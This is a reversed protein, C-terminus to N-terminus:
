AAREEYEADIVDRDPRGPRSPLAHRSGGGRSSFAGGQWARYGAYGVIGLVGIGLATMLISSGSPLIPKFGPTLRDCAKACEVPDKGRGTCDSYCAQRKELNDRHAEAQIAIQRTTERKAPIDKLAEVIKLVIYGLVAYVLGQIIIPILVALLPPAGLGAQQGQAVAAQSAATIQNVVAVDSPLAGERWEVQDPRVYADGLGNPTWGKLQASACDINVAQDGPVGKYAVYVPPSIPPAAGGSARIISAVSAQYAYVAKVQLNYIKVDNCTARGANVLGSLATKAANVQRYAQEVNAMMAQVNAALEPTLEAMHSITVRM